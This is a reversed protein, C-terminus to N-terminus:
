DEVRIDMMRPTNLTALLDFARWSITEDPNIQTFFGGSQEAAQKMFARGWQKGVGVGIYKARSPLMKLLSADSRQGLTAIGSGVHVLHPNKASKLMPEVAALAQGLDLAGILQVSELFKVAEKINDATATRPTT